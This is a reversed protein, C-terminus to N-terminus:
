SLIKLAAEASRVIGSRAGMKILLRNFDIQNDQIPTRSGKCEIGVFVAIVDGVMDPTVVISKLGILDSSGECLGFHIPNGQRDYAMGVNNRWLRISPDKSVSLRIQSQVEAETMM